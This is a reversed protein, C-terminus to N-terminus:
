IILEDKFYCVVVNHITVFSLISINFDTLFKLKYNYKHEYALLAPFYDEKGDHLSPKPLKGDAIVRALGVVDNPDYRIMVVIYLSLVCTLEFFYSTQITIDM